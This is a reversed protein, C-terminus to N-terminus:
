QMWFVPHRMLAVTLEMEKGFTAASRGAMLGHIMATVTVSQFKMSSSVRSDGVDGEGYQQCGQRESYRSCM